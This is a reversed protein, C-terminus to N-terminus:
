IRKAYFPQCKKNETTVSIEYFFGECDEREYWSYTQFEIITTTITM